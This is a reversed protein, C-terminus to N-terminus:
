GGGSRACRRVRSGGPGTEERGWNGCSRVRDARGGAREATDQLGGPQRHWNTSLNEADRYSLGPRPITWSTRVTVALGLSNMHPVPEIM